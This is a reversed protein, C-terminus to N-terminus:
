NVMDIVLLNETKEKKKKKKNTKKIVEVDEDSDKLREVMVGEWLRSMFMM